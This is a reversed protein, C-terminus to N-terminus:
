FLSAPEAKALKRVAILGAAMCMAISLASVIVLRSLSMEIDVGIKVSVLYYLLISLFYAPVLASIALALAQKILLGSLYFNSYGIAKLTAYEPLKAIVDSALVMYCIVAGVVVALGVGMSFIIGVPTEYIWRDKEAQLVQERTLVQLHEFGLESLRKQVRDQVVQINSGSTCRLLILSTSNRNMGGSLREFGQRSVIVAGTAALGTGLEVTEAITVRQGNIEASAGIDKSNFAVGNSPGFDKSSKTDIIVQSPIALKDSKARLEDLNLASRNPDIGFIAIGRSDTTTRILSQLSPRNEAEEYQNETGVKIKSYGGLLTDLPRVDTVGPVGAVTTLVSDSVMGSEFLHLYDPSRVLLDFQMRGYVIAATEGVAGLFGLQMFMLVIALMIGGISVATRALQYTLNKFVLPTKRLM